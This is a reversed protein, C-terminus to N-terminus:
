ISVLSESREVPYRRFTKSDAMWQGKSRKWATLVIEAADIYSKDTNEVITEVLSRVFPENYESMMAEIMERRKRAHMM